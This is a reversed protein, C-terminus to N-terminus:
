KQSQNLLSLERVIDLLNYSINKLDGIIQGLNVAIIALLILLITKYGIEFWNNKM